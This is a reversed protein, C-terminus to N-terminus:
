IEFFHFLVTFLSELVVLQFIIQVVSATTARGVGEAGGETALGRRCAILVIALGFFFCKLLGSGVHRISLMDRTREIYVEPTLGLNTVGILLGGSMGAIEGAITLLPFSVIIAILRPLVLYRMSDLGLVKLADIEESVKMTGLEAAIGAGSRGAVIIGTMLPGLSRAVAIAVMDAVFINAGFQELQIAGMYALTVGVLFNIALVIPLADAGIDAILRPLDRWNIRMPHRLSSFAAITLEGVYRFAGDYGKVAAVVGGGLRTVVGRKALELQKQDTREVRSRRMALVRAAAEDAGHIECSRGEAELNKKLALLLALMGDDLECSALDVAVTGRGAEIRDRASVWEVAHRVLDIRGNPRLLIAGGDDQISFAPTTEREAM